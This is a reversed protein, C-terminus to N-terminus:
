YKEEKVFGERMLESDGFVPLSNKRWSGENFRLRIFHDHDNASRIYLTDFEDPVYDFDFCNGANMRKAIAGADLHEALKEAPLVFKGIIMRLRKTKDTYRYLQWTFEATALQAPDDACTCFKFNESPSCM